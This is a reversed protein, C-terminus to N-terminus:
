SNLISLLYSLDSWKSSLRFSWQLFCVQSYVWVYKSINRESIDTGVGIEAISSFLIGKENELNFPRYM